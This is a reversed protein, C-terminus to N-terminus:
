KNIIIKSINTGKAKEYSSQKSPSEFGYKVNNVSVFSDTASSPTDNTTSASTSTTADVTINSNVEAVAQQYATQAQAINDQSQSLSNQLNIIDGGLESVKNELSTIYQKNYSIEANLGNIQAQYVNIVSQSNTALNNYSTQLESITDSAVKNYKTKADYWTGTYLLTEESTGGGTELVTSVYYTTDTMGLIKNADETAIKFVVEGNVPNIEKINNYSKLKIKLGSTKDYFNIYITGVQTLDVLQPEGLGTASSKANNYIIFLYFNDFPTISIPGEGQQYVKDANSIQEIRLPINASMTSQGKATPLVDGQQQVAPVIKVASVSASIRNRDVFSTVFETQIVKTQTTGQINMRNYSTLNVVTRTDPLTNYVKAITPEVGLNIKRMRRGYKKVDFSTYQAQRIIQSNDYKNFVRLTYEISYSTANSSNYIIPRFRYPVGFDDTQMFSNESTTFNNIGVQEIVRIDHFVIIQTNPLSDLNAIFDEYIIGNYEGYIEFYDGASSEEVVASLGSYEDTMSISTSVQEGPIFFKYGNVVQTQTINKLNIDIMSNPMIGIGSTLIYSLSNTVNPSLSSVSNLYSLAPLKLEIYTTYLKEGVMFEDPNLVEYSDSNLYTISTLNHKKGNKDTVLIEFIFGDGQSAFSFGSVMHIRLTDYQITETPINPPGSLQSLLATVNTLNPDYDLYNLPLNTTLYAYKTRSSNVPVSSYTRYNGTPVYPSDETFLFKTNTYDDNLVMVRAGNTDADIEQPNSPDQYIYELLIQDNLRIYKSTSAM